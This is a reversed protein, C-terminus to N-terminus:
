RHGGVIRQIYIRHVSGSLCECSAFGISFLLLKYFFGEAIEVFYNTHFANVSIKVPRAKRRSFEPAWGGASMSNWIASSVLDLTLLGAM